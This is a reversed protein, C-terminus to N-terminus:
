HFVVSVVSRRAPKASGIQLAGLDSTIVRLRPVSTGLSEHNKSHIVSYVRQM